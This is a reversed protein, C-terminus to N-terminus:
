EFDDFLQMKHSILYPLYRDTFLENKTCTSVPWTPSPQGAFVKIRQKLLEKYFTSANTIIAFVINNRYCDLDQIFINLFDYAKYNSNPCSEVREVWKVREGNTM